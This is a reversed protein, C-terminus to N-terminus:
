RDLDRPYNINRLPALPLPVEEWGGLACRLDRLAHQGGDLLKEVVPLVSVPYLACLPQLRGDPTRAFVPCGPTRSASVLMKLAETTLFPMDCAVALLWPTRCRVLGVHLGALPGAGPYRDVVEERDVIPSTGEARVSVLVETVLPILADLVRLAM